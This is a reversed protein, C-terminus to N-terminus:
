SKLICEWVKNYYKRIIDIMKILQKVIWGFIREFFEVSHKKCVLKQLLSWLIFYKDQHIEFSYFLFMTFFFFVYIFLTLGKQVWFIRPGEQPQSLAKKNVKITGVILQYFIIMDLFDCSTQRTGLQSFWKCIQCTVVVYNSRTLCKLKFHSHFSFLLMVRLHMDIM